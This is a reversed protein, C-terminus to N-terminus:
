CIDARMSRTANSLLFFLIQLSSAEYIRLTYKLLEVDLHKKRSLKTTKKEKDLM